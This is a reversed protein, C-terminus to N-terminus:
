ISGKVNEALKKIKNLKKDYYIDKFIMGVVFGLSYENLEFNFWHQCAVSIIRSVTILGVLILFWGVYEKLSNM